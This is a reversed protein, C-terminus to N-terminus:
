RAGRAVSAIAAALADALASGGLDDSSVEILVGRGAAPALAALPAEGVTGARFGGVQFLASALAEAARRGVALDPVLGLLLERRLVDTAESAGGERALADAANRRIAMELTAAEEAEGLVWLRVEGPALDGVQLAVVLDAGAGLALRREARAPAASTRSLVVETGEGSLRGAVDEALSLLVARWEPPVSGFGPDLVIRVPESVGADTREGEPLPRARLRLDTGEGDPLAIAEIEASPADIRIRMGTGEPVLDVRQMWEGALSRAQALQARPLLLETRGLAADDFREVRVPADLRVRLTEVTAEAVLEVSLVTARPTVVVVSREDPLFAVSAGFARAIPAVPGWVADDGRVAALDALASGDRRLAGNRVPDTGLEVVDVVIVHGALTLAATDGGIPAALRAGMGAAIADLPAYSAGPVLDTRAEGVTRGDVRLLLPADQAAVTSTLLSILLLALTRLAVGVSRPSRRM